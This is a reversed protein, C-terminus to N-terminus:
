QGSDVLREAVVEVVDKVVLTDGAARAADRLMIMCFPCGVALTEAGTAMAERVRNASVRERGAEEEKWMQAGGAGCCFSGAETREMEARTVGAADLARRPAEFVGNHRGLYCPDHYTVTGQPTPLTTGEAQLKLRGADILEQIFETHHVVAYNGGYAPYENKLTHLCHPCTTLIRKPAARNLGEVNAKALEHFVYDNGARRAPDGTCSESSGLVAFSVGAARLIRVMTRATQQA